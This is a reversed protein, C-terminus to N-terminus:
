SQLISQQSNFQRRAAMTCNTPPNTHKGFRLQWKSTHAVTPTTPLNRSYPKTSQARTQNMGKCSISFCSAIPLMRLSVLINRAILPQPRIPLPRPTSNLRMVVFKMCKVNPHGGHWSTMSFRKKTFLYPEQMTEMARKGIEMRSQKFGINRHRM